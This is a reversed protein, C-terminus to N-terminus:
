ISVTSLIIRGFKAKTFSKYSTCRENVHCFRHQTLLNLILVEANSLEQFSSTVLHLSQLFLWNSGKIIYRDRSWRYIHKSAKPVLCPSQNRGFKTSVENDLNYKECVMVIAFFPISISGLGWIQDVFRIITRWYRFRACNCHAQHWHCQGSVVFGEYSWSCM